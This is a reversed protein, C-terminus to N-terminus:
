KKKDAKVVFSDSKIEAPADPNKLRAGSQLLSRAQKKGDGQVRERMYHCGNKTPRWFYLFGDKILVHPWETEFLADAAKERDQKAM